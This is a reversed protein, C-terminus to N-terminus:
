AAGGTAKLAEAHLQKRPVLASLLCAFGTLAVVLAFTVKIGAMYALVIHPVQDATFVRRIQTAGTGIVLRPTIDPARRGLEQVM